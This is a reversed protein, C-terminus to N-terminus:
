RIESQRLCTELMNLGTRFWETVSLYNSVNESQDMVRGSSVASWSFRIKDLDALVWKVGSKIDLLM